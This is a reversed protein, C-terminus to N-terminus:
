AAAAALDDIIARREHRHPSLLHVFALAGKARRRRARGHLDGNGDTEGIWLDRLSKSGARAAIVVVADAFDALDEVRVASFLYRRGSAGTWYQFREGFDTKRVSTPIDNMATAAINREMWAM